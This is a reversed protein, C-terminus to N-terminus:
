LNPSKWRLEAEKPSLMRKIWGITAFHSPVAPRLKLHFPLLLYFECSKIDRKSIKTAKRSLVRISHATIELAIGFWRCLHSQGTFSWSLDNKASEEHFFSDEQFECRRRDPMQSSFLFVGQTSSRLPSSLSIFSQSQLLSGGQSSSSNSQTLSGNM